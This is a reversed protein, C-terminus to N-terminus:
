VRCASGRQEGREVDGGTRDDAAAVGLVTGALEPLEEVLDLGVHRAVEVDMQHHVVVGGVLGFRDAIPEGLARAPMDVEGGGSCGPTVLDLAEEGQHGFLLDSAADM